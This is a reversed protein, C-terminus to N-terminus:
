LLYLLYVLTVTISLFAAKTKIGKQRLPGAQHVTLLNLVVLITPTVSVEMCHWLLLVPIM